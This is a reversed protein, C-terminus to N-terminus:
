EHKKTDRNAELLVLDNFVQGPTINLSKAVAAMVKSSINVTSVRKAANALTTSAMGSAKSVAYRTINKSELYEDLLSTPESHDVAKAIDNAAKESTAKAEEETFNANAFKALANKKEEGKGYVVNMADIIDPQGMRADLEARYEDSFDHGQVGILEAKKNYRVQYNKYNWTTEGAHFIMADKEAETLEEYTKLANVVVGNKATQNIIM